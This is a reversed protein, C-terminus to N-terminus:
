KVVVTGRMERPHVECHYPYTGPHRFTYSYAGAPSLEESGWDGRDSTVTHKHHGRNTWRVTTGAPVTLMPPDFRNDYLGVEAARVDRAELRSEGGPPELGAALLKRARDLKGLFREADEYSAQTLSFREERDRRLFERLADTARGLEQALHKNAPGTRAQEAGEQFLADIERRLEEAAPGGVAALGGPWQLRGGDNPVGSATLVRGVRDEESPTQSSAGAGYSPAQM